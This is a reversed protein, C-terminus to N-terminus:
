GSSKGMAGLPAMNLARHFTPGPMPPANQDQRNPQAEAHAQGKDLAAHHRRFHGNRSLAAM